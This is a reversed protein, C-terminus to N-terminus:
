PREYDERSGQISPNYRMLAQNVGAEIDLAIRLRLSAEM